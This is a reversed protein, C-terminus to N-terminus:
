AKPATDKGDTPQKTAGQGAQQTESVNKVDSAYVQKQSQQNNQQGNNQGKRENRDVVGNNNADQLSMDIEPDTQPHRPTMKIVAVAAGVLGALGATLWMFTKLEGETLAIAGGKEATIITMDAVALAIEAGACILMMVLSIAKRSEDSRWVRARRDYYFARTYILAFIVAGITTSFLGLYAFLADEERFTFTLFDLTRYGLYIFMAGGLVWAGIDALYDLFTKQEKM